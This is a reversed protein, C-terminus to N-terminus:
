SQSSRDEGETDEDAEFWEQDGGDHGGIGAGDTMVPEIDAENDLERHWHKPIRQRGYDLLISGAALSVGFKQALDEATGGDFAHLRSITCRRKVEIKPTQDAGNGYRFAELFGRVFQLNTDVDLPLEFRIM